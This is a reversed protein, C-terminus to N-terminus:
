VAILSWIRGIIEPTSFLVNTNARTCLLKTNLPVLLPIEGQPSLAFTEYGKSHMLQRLSHQNQSFLHLAQENIEAIVFPCAHPGDLPELANVESGEIDLKIFKAPLYQDITTATMLAAQYAQGNPALANGGGDEYLHLTVPKVMSWLPQEIVTTNSANNLQLNCRLWPLNNEGPEIAIVTGNSGALQSMMMTYTGINAGGDIVTDGPWIVRMMLHIIEINPFTNANFCGLLDRNPPYAEDLGYKVEISRGNVALMKSHITVAM